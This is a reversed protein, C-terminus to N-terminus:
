KAQRPWLTGGKSRPLHGEGEQNTKEQLLPIAEPTSEELTNGVESVYPRLVQMYLAVGQEIVEPLVVEGDIELFPLWYDSILWCLRALNTVSAPIQPFCLVGSSSFQQFLAELNALRERRIQQYREKLLPDRQVLASLERYFFRYDWVLLLNKIVIQQVDALQPPRETPFMYLAEWRVIMRELIARIIEEKNRFHYYLNGPSMSLAQAIHNTSVVGTGQENFLGIATEIIREKTNM